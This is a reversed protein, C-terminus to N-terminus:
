RIEVFFHESEAPTSGAVEQDGTPRADLQAMSASLSNNPSMHLGAFKLAKIHSTWIFGLYRSTNKTEYGKCINKEIKKGSYVSNFVWVMYQFIRSEIVPM